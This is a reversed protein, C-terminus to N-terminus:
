KISNLEMKFQSNQITMVIEPPNTYQGPDSVLNDNEQNSAQGGSVVQRGSKTTGLLLSKLATANLLLSKQRVQIKMGHAQHWRKM